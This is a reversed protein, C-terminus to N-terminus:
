SGAVICDGSFFQQGLDQTHWAATICHTADSPGDQGMKCLWWFAVTWWTLIIQRALTVLTFIFLCSGAVGFDASYFLGGLNQTHTHLHSVTWLIIVSAWARPTRWPLSIRM